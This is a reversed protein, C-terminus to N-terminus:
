LSSFLQGVIVIPVSYVVAAQRPSRVLFYKRCGIDVLKVNGLRPLYKEKQEESGYAYIAGM